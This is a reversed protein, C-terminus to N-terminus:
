EALLERLMEEQTKFRSPKPPPSRKEILAVDKEPIGSSSSTKDVASPEQSVDTGVKSEAAAAENAKKALGNEAAAADSDASKPLEIKPEPRGVPFGVKQNGSGDSGAPIGGSEQGAKSGMSTDRSDGVSYDKLGEALMQEVKEPPLEETRVVLEAPIIILDGVRLRTPDLGPNADVLHSWNSAKGTYWASVLGLNEGPYRIIHEVPYPSDDSVARPEFVRHRATCGVGLSLTLALWSALFFTQKCLRVCSSVLVIGVAM